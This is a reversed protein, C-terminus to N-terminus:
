QWFWKKAAYSNVWNVSGVITPTVLGDAGQCADSAPSFTYLLEIRDGGNLQIGDPFQTAFDADNISSWDFSFQQDYCTLLGLKSFLVSTDNAPISVGGSWDPAITFPTEISDTAYHIALVMDIYYNCQTCICPCSCECLQTEPRVLALDFDAQLQLITGASPQSLLM